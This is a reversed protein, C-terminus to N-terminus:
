RFSPGSVWTVLSRRTGKTVPTVRHRMFSPFCIVTGQDRSATFVHDNDLSFELNGGEYESPDSLQVSISIKRTSPRYAPGIDFHWNYWGSNKENYQTFQIREDLAAIDFKYINENVTGVIELIREYLPWFYENRPIWSIESRRVDANINTHVSGKEMPFKYKSIANCEAPTFVNSFQQISLLNSNSRLFLVPAEM